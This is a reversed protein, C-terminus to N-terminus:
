RRLEVVDFTSEQVPFPMELRAGGATATMQGIQDDPTVAAGAWAGNGSYRHPTEGKVWSAGLYVYRDGDAYLTGGMRQSGSTKEFRLAGGSEFVRCHFWSYTKSPTMGGLKITRCRYNGTISGGTSPARLAEQAAGDSEALGRSRAEDIRALRMQDYSSAEDTWNAQAAVPILIAAAILVAKLTPRM